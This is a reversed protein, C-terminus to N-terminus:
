VKERLGHSVWHGTVDSQYEDSVEITREMYRGEPTSVDIPLNLAIVQIGRKRLDDKYRRSLLANRAWRSSHFMIVVKIEGRVGSQHLAQFGVRQDTKGTLQDFHVREWPIWVKRRAAEELISRLQAGPSFGQLSDDESERGYAAGRAWGLHEGMSAAWGALVAELAGM